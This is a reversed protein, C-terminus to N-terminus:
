QQPEYFNIRKTYNAISEVYTTKLSNNVIKHPQFFFSGLSLYTNYYEKAEDIVESNIPAEMISDSAVSQFIWDLLSLERRTGSELVYGELVTDKYKQPAGFWSIVELEFEKLSLTEAAILGENILESADVSM